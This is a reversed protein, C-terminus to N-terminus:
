AASKLENKAPLTTPTPLAIVSAKGMRLFCPLLVLSFLTSCCMGGVIVAALGRYIVSGTGPMLLLPLMGFISTLTSMFIPRLRMLLAQEVATHRDLGEREATRTQHVLLIANNVVLGLLIVFGIMTLLDLPQFTFLNLLRISIVGGVMALPVALVVLASDRMSRFLATMLLFLILLATLFNGGISNIARNLANASGTYIIHGDTPMLTALEPELETQLVSMVRELSMNEPPRISLTVTRRRDVRRLQSPGVTRELKALQSLPVVAGTSTVIPMSALAEPENWAQARLIINLRREGDFHEGVYLGDGLSRVVNGLDVRSWGNEALTRDNPTLRLEPEAQQLGPSVRVNSNPLLEALRQQATQAVEALADRNKSQLHMDVVREGGFGGFLNGQESFAELDPLDKLIEQQIVEQLDGVLRQDQVRAGITGGGPWTLIYYNKLAPQKSGEMYPAFRQDLIAVYENRLTDYSTGAPTQFYVDVADRKVPPLYDMEPQLAWTILLPGGILLCALVRRQKVTSTIAMVGQSVTLWLPKHADGESHQQLFRVAAMPLVTVAVILSVVVAIAITAALDGFLQGEVERMFVVPLFIAVTTATSALLATWVQGTGERAAQEIAVGRERLRIINELVVIAADLVMGVAFALGALSIVNLTRGTMHLVIFTALLSIPISLAVILTARLKRLFWWLVAVALLVGLLLNSTVLNIARYIFVSADFSQAMFLQQDVLLESNLKDVALKVRNLTELANANSEKDVRISLAPNGNQTAIGGGDSRKIEIKAIDGLTIPQGDRWELIQDRLQEPAYRGALRLTYQRRGVDIFGGSIDNAQGLLSAVETLGIGLEAARYPDFQIQLEEEGGAGDRTQVSSVGPVNELQPRIVDEAFQAYDEIKGDNGPLLQLFFFTLAPQDGGGGFSVIPQSADRPLPDLRNLRAVVDMLTKQMDTALGFQLSIWASGPNARADMAETGPLGRLVAEIPEIIESEIEKPSAARWQTFISIQPREIDPFLQIPLRQLSFIGFIVVMAVIVAVGAPNRLSATTLQM